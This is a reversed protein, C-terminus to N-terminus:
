GHAAEKRVLERTVAETMVAAKSSSWASRSSRRGPGAGPRKTGPRAAGGIPGALCTGGRLRRLQQERQRIHEEILYPHIFM